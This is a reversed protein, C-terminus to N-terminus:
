VKGDKSREKKKKETKKVTDKATVTVETSGNKVKKASSLTSFLDDIETSNKVVAKPFVKPEAKKATSKVVKKDKTM